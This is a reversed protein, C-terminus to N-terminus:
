LGFSFGCGIIFGGPAMFEITRALTYSPNNSGVVQFKRATTEFSYGGCIHFRHRRGLKFYRYGQLAINTQPLTRMIVSQPFTGLSDEYIVEGLGGARTVALGVAWGKYCEKFYYKGEVYGKLGWLGLGFGGGISLHQDVGIEINNAFLGGNNNIGFSPGLFVKPCVPLEEKLKKKKENDFYDEQGISRNAFVSLIIIFLLKVKHLRM